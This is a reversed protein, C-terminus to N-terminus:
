EYCSASRIAAQPGDLAANFQEDIRDFADQSRTADASGAM